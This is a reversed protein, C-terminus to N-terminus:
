TAVEFFCCTSYAIATSVLPAGLSCARIASRWSCWAVKSSLSEHFAIGCYSRCYHTHAFFGGPLAEGASSHKITTAITRGCSKLIRSSMITITFRLLALIALNFRALVHELRVSHANQGSQPCDVAQDGESFRSRLSQRVCLSVPLASTSVM